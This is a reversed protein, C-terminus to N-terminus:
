HHYVDTLRANGPTKELVVGLWGAEITRHTKGIRRASDLLVSTPLIRYVAQDRSSLGRKFRTVLGALRGKQNLVFSGVLRERNGLRSPDLILTSEPLSEEPQMSLIRHTEIQWRGAAYSTFFLQSAELTDALALNRDQFEDSHLLVLETRKDIGLLEAARYNDDGCSTAARINKVDKQFLEFGGAHAIILGRPDIVVGWYEAKEEIQIDPLFRGKLMVGSVRFGLEVRALSRRFDREASQAIM